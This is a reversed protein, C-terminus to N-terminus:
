RPGMARTPGPGPCHQGHPLHDDVPAWDGRRGPATRSRMCDVWNDLHPRTVGWEYNAKPKDVVLEPPNSVCKNRNTEIKGKEGIFIGGWAPGHGQPLKMEVIVGNAYRMTVPSMPDGPKEAWVEVPGTYDTGLCAQVIDYSHAGWGTVGWCLGGGDYDWWKGWKGCDHYLSTTHPALEAQNCWMDWNMEPPVPQSPMATRRVPGIFNNALVKQVKGLLGGRIQEYAWKDLIMSRAQTGCQVVRKHKRAARVLVQGEEITLCIPKELYVDLGAQMAHIGILARAHATTTVFVADLKTKDLMQHYDQYRPWQSFDQSFKTRAFRGFSSKDSMQRLDCDAIAVLQLDPPSEALVTVVRGGCGIVAVSIRDNAGPQTVSALVGRPIVTPAAMSTAAVKLFERRRM